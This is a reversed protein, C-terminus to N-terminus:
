AATTGAPELAVVRRTRPLFYLKYEAPTLAGYAAGSVQFRQGNVKWYYTSTTFRSLGVGVRMDEAVPEVLGEVRAVAGGAIDLWLSRASLALGGAAFLLVGGTAAARFTHRPDVNLWAVVLLGIGAPLCLVAGVLRVADARLLVQRQRQGIRGAVNEALDQDSFGIAARLQQRYFPLDTYEPM